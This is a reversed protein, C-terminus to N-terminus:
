PWRAALSIVGAGALVSLLLAYMAFRDTVEVLEEDYGISSAITQYVGRLDGISEASYKKGGSNKAIQSLEAHNVPVPVRVGEEYVYGGATGYAIAYIPVNQEKAETAADASDRGINTYGDSLLVIAGPAPDDPHDPDPPALQLTDLSTYIAEGIATAPELEIADIASKVATHDTTPAAAIQATGSFTVLAINFSAPVMDVFEKAATQAAEIRSPSVDEARMSRSIDIAVVVTARERPVQTIDQPQAYALVLSAMALLSAGVSIHRKLASDKPIVLDLRTKGRRRTGTQLRSGVILYFVLVAAVLLLLWLRGPHMFELMPIM